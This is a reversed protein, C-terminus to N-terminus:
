HVLSSIEPGSLEKQCTRESAALQRSRLPAPVRLIPAFCDRKRRSTLDRVEATGSQPRMGCGNSGRGHRCGSCFGQLMCFSRKMFRIMVRTVCFSRKVFPEVAFSVLLFVSSKKM